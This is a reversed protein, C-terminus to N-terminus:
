STMRVELRFPILDNDVIKFPVGLRAVLNRVTSEGIRADEEEILRQWVRRATHRQKRPASLDEMLWGRVLDVYPGTAPAVREPAKRVPPTADAM